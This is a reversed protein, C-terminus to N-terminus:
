INIKQTYGLVESSDGGCTDTGDSLLIVQICFNKGNRLVEAHAEQIAYELETWKGARLSPVISRIQASGGVQIPVPVQVADTVHVGQCGNFTILGAPADAPFRKMIRDMSAKTNVLPNGRMSNSIDFVFLVGRKSPASENNQAKLDPTLVLLLFILASFYKRM